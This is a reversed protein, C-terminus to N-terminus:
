RPVFFETYSTIRWKRIEIMDVIREGGATRSPTM